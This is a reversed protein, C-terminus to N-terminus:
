FYGPGFNKKREDLQDKESRDTQLCSQYIYKNTNRSLDADGSIRSMQVPRGVNAIPQFEDPGGVVATSLVDPREQQRSLYTINM